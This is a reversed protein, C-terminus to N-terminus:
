QGVVPIFAIPFLMRFVLVRHESTEFEKVTLISSSKHHEYASNETGTNCSLSAIRMQNMLVKKPSYFDDLRLMSTHSFHSQIDYM